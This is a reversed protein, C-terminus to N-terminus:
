YDKFINLYFSPQQLSTRFVFEFFKLFYFFHLYLKHDIFASCAITSAFMGDLVHHCVSQCSSRNFVGVSYFSRSSRGGTTNAHRLVCSWRHWALKRWVHAFTRRKAVTNDSRNFLSAITRAINECRFKSLNTWREIDANWKKFEIFPNRDFFSIWTSVTKTNRFEFRSGSFRTWGYLDIHQIFFQHDDSPM